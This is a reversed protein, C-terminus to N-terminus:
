RNLGLDIKTKVTGPPVHIEDWHYENLFCPAVWDPTLNCGTFRIAYADRSDQFLNVSSGDVNVLRIARGNRYYFMYNGSSGVGGSGLVFAGEVGPMDRIAVLEVRQYHDEHDLALNAIGAGGYLTCCGALGGGVLCLIAVMIVEFVGDIFSEDYLSVAMGIVTAILVITAFILIV